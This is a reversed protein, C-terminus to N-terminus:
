VGPSRTIKEKLERYLCLANLARATREECPFVPVGREILSWISREDLKRYTFGVVPKGSTKILRAIIDAQSDVLKAAEEVAKEHELGMQKLTDIVMLYPMLFYILLIDSRSDGALIEPIVTTYDMPNRTFTLDIPNNVSATHPVYPKLKELTDPALSPLSLGLRGCADAAAAGPGGSNTQIILNRGAPLPSSGLTWCMDFMEVLSGARVVGSQRFIGDYLKDPGAMSGTHSFAAKRGTESGGVYLAVIPKHPVIARATEVFARGRKIGEIYLAIVKTDQCAGLYELCDVIDVNAENGVSFATSFGLNYQELYNFVQTVFSGSQSALGIFGAKEPLPFFTTNMRLHLNAVGLCNPGLIRIGYRAATEVLEKELQIGDGGVEKFGASVVVARKVGKRGCEDITRCVISTHVVLVALDPVEPLDLVSKYAKFGQVENEKPNVAYITGKFGGKILSNLINSGMASLNNSAGFFVVSKPNAMNYLPSDQINKLM